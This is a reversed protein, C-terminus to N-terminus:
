RSAPFRKELNRMGNWLVYRFVRLFAYRMVWSKGPTAYALWVISTTGDRNPSFGIASLHGRYAGLFARDNASYAYFSSPDFAVVRELTPPIPGVEIVRVSGVGGPTTAKSDDSRSKGGTPLWSSLQSADTVFRFAEEVGIGLRGEVEVLIPANTLTSARAKTSTILESM